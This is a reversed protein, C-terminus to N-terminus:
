GARFTVGDLASLTGAPLVAGDTAGNPNTGAGLINLPASNGTCGSCFVLQAWVRNNAPRYGAPLKFAAVGMTSCQLLGKLHVVGLKDKYFGVPEYDQAPIGSTASSCGNQFPPEGGKGVEHFRESVAVTSATKASNATNASPVQAITSEDLDAGTLSDSRVDAGTLSGNRVKSSTVANKKIKAGTVASKRLQKAGVSNRPITLAYAGGSLAVFLAILSVVNAFTLRSRFAALM